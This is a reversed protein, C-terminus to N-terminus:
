CVAIVRTIKKEMQTDVPNSGQRGNECFPISVLVINVGHIKLQTVIRIQVSFLQGVILQTVM